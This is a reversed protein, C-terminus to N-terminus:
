ISLLLYEDDDDDDQHLCRRDVVRLFNTMITPVGDAPWDHLIKLCTLRQRGCNRNEYTTGTLIARELNDKRYHGSFLVM